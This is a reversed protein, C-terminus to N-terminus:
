ILGMAKWWPYSLAITAVRAINVITHCRMFVPRDILSVFGAAVLQKYYPSQYPLFWIDTFMSVLFLCIWSNIGQAEAIPLLLGFSVIMGPNYPLFLRCSLTTLLSVLVFLSFNGQMATVRGAFFDALLETIGLHQMVQVLGDTSLLFFLLAWDIQRRFDQKNLSGSLLVLTLVLGAIWAPAVEHMGGTALGGLYLLFSALAIKEIPQM